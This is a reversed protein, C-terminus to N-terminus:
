GRIALPIAVEGKPVGRLSLRHPVVFSGLGHDIPSELPSRSLADSELGLADSRQRSPLRCNM